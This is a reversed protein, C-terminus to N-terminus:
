SKLFLAEPQATGRVLWLAAALTVTGDDVGGGGLKARPL